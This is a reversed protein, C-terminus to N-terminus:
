EIKISPIADRERFFDAITYVRKRPLTFLIPCNLKNRLLDNRRFVGFEDLHEFARDFVEFSSPYLLDRM